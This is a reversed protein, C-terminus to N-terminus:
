RHRQGGRPTRALSKPAPGSRSRYAAIANPLDRLHEVEDVCGLATRRLLALDDEAENLGTDPLVADIVARINDGLAELPTLQQKLERWKALAHGSRPIQVDGADLLRLIEQVDTGREQAARLVARYSAVLGNATGLGIWSRLAIRDEPTSLLTLLTLKEQAAENEVPEERFFSRIDIGRAQVALKIGNGIVRSNALVLCMGADIGDPM